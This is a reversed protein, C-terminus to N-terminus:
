PKPTCHIEIESVYGPYKPSSPDLTALTSRLNKCVTASDPPVPPVYSNAIQAHDCKLEGFKNKLEGYLPEKVTHMEAFILKCEAANDPVVTPTAPETPAPKATDATFAPLDQATESSTKASHVAKDESLFDQCGLFVSASLALIAIGRNLTTKKRM